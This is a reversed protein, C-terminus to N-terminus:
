NGTALIDGLLNGNLLIYVQKIKSFQRVTTWVQARVRSDDCRDDSRVYTGTLNISVLGSYSKFNVSEVELNSRFIPHYLNGFWERKFFLRQLATKVDATIDGTRWQGTNVPVLSDGCAVPGGTGLQIYYVYIADKGSPTPPPMTETPTGSPTASPTPSLTATATTTLTPTPAPTFTSTVTSTPPLSTTSALAVPTDTAPISTIVEISDNLFGPQCATLWILSAIMWLLGLLVRQQGVASKEPRNELMLRAISRPDKSIMQFEIELLFGM